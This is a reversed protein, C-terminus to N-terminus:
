GVERRSGSVWDNRDNVLIENIVSFVGHVRKAAMEAAHKHRDTDVFGVLTVVGQRVTVAIERADLDPESELQLQVADHLQTDPEWPLM